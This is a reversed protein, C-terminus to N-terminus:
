CHSHTRGERKDDGNNKIHPSARPIFIELTWVFPCNFIDAKTNIPLSDNHLTPTEGPKTKSCNFLSRISNEAQQDSSVDSHANQPLVGIFEFIMMVTLFNQNEDVIDVLNELPLM